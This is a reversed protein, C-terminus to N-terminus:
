ALAHKHAYSAAETRNSVGTKNFIHSVHRYVTNLSITLEEGIQKNSRGAAILRLVEVERTSLGAPLEHAETDAIQLDALFAEIARIGQDVNGWADSGDILVFSGRSQQARKMSEQVPTLPYGRSHLVVTPVALRSLMAEMEEGSALVRFRRRFSPLDIAQRLLDVIRHGEERSRDRPVLSYLFADWDEAPLASFLSASRPQGSTGFILGILKHPHRLSYDVALDVGSSAGYILMRELNLQGVVADIDNQFHERSLGDDVDRSSMGAGRPDLQILRFREALQELWTQLGPYQWALQIHNFAGPLFLL